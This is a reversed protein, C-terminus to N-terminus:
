VFSSNEGNELLQRIVLGALLVGFLAPMFSITGNITKARGPLGDAVTPPLAPAPAEDSFVTLFSLSAGMKRLLARLERALPCIETQNLRAVRVRRPDLRNGAGMSSLVPIGLQQAAAILAAKCAIADICDAVLEAGLDQLLTGAGDADIFAQRTVVQCQPHIDRIREAMVEVKPRGLTSHLAVLQRNINSIGVVDHDVLTLRGIGARALNEAVYGGVGGIGAILVHRDALNRVGEAGLLIETRAFPHTM